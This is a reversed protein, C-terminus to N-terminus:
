ALKSFGACTKWLASAAPHTKPMRRRALAQRYRNDDYPTRNKWCSYVIRIWKAALSRVAAHHRKGKDRQNQYHERAWDCHQRSCNAWEHFTQRLFKSCARRFQVVHMKGSQKLIPAIGSYCGLDNASDFRERDTGLATLLRPALAPGAGPLSRFILADPHQNFLQEIRNELQKIADVLVAIQALLVPTLRTAAELLATDTIAPLAPAIQAIREEIREQSRCNHEFFFKRLTAPRATKLQPLTPWRRLLDAVLRSDLDPFWELIQPFYLKLNATLQNTLTTKHNVLGRRQENLLALLRTEATETRVPRLRDRHRLLLDLILDVDRDDGKAGAPSFSKRYSALSAPHVPHIALHAYKTLMHFLPGRAQELALAVPRGGWRQALALAWAEVAEPRHILEGSEFTDTEPVYMKWVHKQDAWDIAVFAAFEAIAPQSTQM